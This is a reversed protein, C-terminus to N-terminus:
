LDMKFGSKKVLQPFIKDFDGGFMKEMMKQPMDIEMNFDPIDKTYYTSLIFKIREGYQEHQINKYNLLFSQKKDLNFEKLNLVASLGIRLDECTSKIDAICKKGDKIFKYSSLGIIGKKDFTETSIITTSNDKNPKDFKINVKKRAEPSAARPFFIKHIEKLLKRFGEVDFNEKGTISITDILTIGKIDMTLNQSKGAKVNKAFNKYLSYNEEGMKRAIPLLKQVSM